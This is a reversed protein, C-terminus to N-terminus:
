KGGGIGLAIQQATAAEFDKEPVEDKLTVPFGAQRCVYEAWAKIFLNNHNKAVQAVQQAFELLDPAAAILKADEDSWCSAVCFDAASYVDGCRSVTWPTESLSM